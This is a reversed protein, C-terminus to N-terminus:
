EEPVLIHKELFGLLGQFKLESKAKIRNLIEGLRKFLFSQKQYDYVTQLEELDEFMELVIMGLSFMESKFAKYKVKKSQKILGEFLKPAIYLPKYSLVNKKQVQEFSKKNGLRDLLKFNKNTQDYSIFCPRLDGHIM